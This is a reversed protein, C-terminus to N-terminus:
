WVDHQWFCLGCLCGSNACDDLIRWCSCFKESNALNCTWFEGTYLDKMGLNWRTMWSEHETWRAIMDFGLVSLFLVMGNGAKKIPRQNSASCGSIRVCHNAKTLRRWHLNCQVSHFKRQDKKPLSCLVVGWQPCGHGMYVAIEAGREMDCGLLSPFLVMGNGAKSTPRQNSASCGSIKICHNATIPRKGPVQASRRSVERPKINSCAVCRWLCKLVMNWTVVCFRPFCCALNLVMKRNAFNHGLPKSHTSLGSDFPVLLPVVAWRGINGLSAISSTTSPNMSAHVQVQERYPIRRVWSGAQRNDHWTMRKRPYTGHDHQMCPLWMDRNMEDWRMEGEGKPTYGLTHTDTHTHRFIPYAALDGLIALCVPLIIFWLKTWRWLFEICPGARSWGLRNKVRETWLILFVCSSCQSFAVFQFVIWVYKRVFCRSTLLGQIYIYIYIYKNLNMYINDHIYIYIYDFIYIYM